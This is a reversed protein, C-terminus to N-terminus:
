VLGMQLLRGKGETQASGGSSPGQEPGGGRFGGVAVLAGEASRGCHRWWPPGVPGGAHRVQQSYVQEFASNKLPIQWDGRLDGRGQTLSWLIM